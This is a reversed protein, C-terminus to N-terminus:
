RDKREEVERVRIARPQRTRYRVRQPTDRHAAPAPPRRLEARIEQLMSRLSRLEARMEAIVARLDDGHNAGHPDHHGHDGREFLRRVEHKGEDSKEVFVRMTKPASAHGKAHGEREVVVEVDEFEFRPARLVVEHEGESFKLVPAHADAGGSHWIVKPAPVPKAPECPECAEAPCEPATMVRFAHSKAGEPAVVRFAGGGAAGDGQIRFQFQEAKGDSVKVPHARQVITAKRVKGEHVKAPHATSAKVKVAAKAKQKAKAHKQQAAGHARKAKELAKKAAEFRRRLTEIDPKGGEGQGQVDSLDLDLEVVKAQVAKGALKKALEAIEAHKGGIDAVDVCELEICDGDVARLKKLAKLQEGLGKLGEGDVVVHLSGHAGVDAGDRIREVLKQVTAHAREVAAEAQPAEAGEVVVEITEVEPKPAQQAGAFAASLCAASLIKTINPTM